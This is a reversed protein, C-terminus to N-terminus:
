PRPSAAPAPESLAAASPDARNDLLVYPATGAVERLPFGAAAELRARDTRHTVVFVRERGRLRAVLEDLTAFSDRDHPEVKGVDLDDDGCDVITVTRDLYYPMGRLYCRYNVVPSAAGGAARVARSLSRSEDLAPSGAAAMLLLCTASASFVAAATVGLLPRRRALALGGFLGAALLLAALAAGGAISSGEFLGHWEGHHRRWFIGMGLLALLPTALPWLFLARRARRDDLAEHVAAALALAGGPLIPLIYAPLKSRSVSFFLLTPVIWALLFAGAESRVLALARAAAGSRAPTGDGAPAASGSGTPAGAAVRVRARRMLGPGALAVPTWPLLGGGLVILFYYWPGPRHHVTTSFRALNEHLFFHSPFEPHVISMAVYWPTAILLFLLSGSWWPIETLRRLDRRLFLFTAALLGVIVVAIPGKTMVGCATAAFALRHAGAGEPGPRWGKIFFLAALTVFLTLGLDLTLIHWAGVLGASSGLLLVALIARRDRWLLWGIEFTAWLTAGAFLAQCARVATESRGFLAMCAATIWNVLPPKDYLVAGDIRPTLYDGREIMQRAIDAYRGEDPELLGWPTFSLLVFFLALGALLLGLAGDGAVWDRLCERRTM